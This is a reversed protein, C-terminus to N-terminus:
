AATAASEASLVMRRARQIATSLPIITTGGNVYHHVMVTGGNPFRLVLKEVQQEAALHAFHLHAEEAIQRGSLYTDIDYIVVKERIAPARHAAKGMFSRMDRWQMLDLDGIRKPLLQVFRIEAVLDDCHDYMDPYVTGRERFLLCMSPTSPYTSKMYKAVEEALRQTDMTANVPFVCQYLPAGDFASEYSQPDANVGLFPAYTRYSLAM